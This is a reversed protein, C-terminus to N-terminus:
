FSQETHEQWDNMEASCEAGESVNLETPLNIPEQIPEKPTM